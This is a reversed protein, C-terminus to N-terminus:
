ESKDTFYPLVKKGLIEIREPFSQVDFTIQTAGVAQYSAIMDILDDPSFFCKSALIMDDTVKDSLKEIKRPDREDRAEKALLGADGSKRVEDAGHEKDVFWVSIPVMKEMASPDKGAKRASSEFSPFIVDRCREPSNITILHDAYTGAYSSSKEGLASFCIPIRARPKTYLFFNNVKFYKGEFSFYDHSEWSKRILLLAEALREIREHWKPWGQPFFLADNMAEGSGVGLVFRGPYMNDVTAAAQAIILPQYRGGIPTTVHVGVKVKRTRDLAVPMTSWVFPAGRRRHTWPLLHDGFWVTDFGYRDAMVACEVFRIPENYSEGIDVNLKLGSL